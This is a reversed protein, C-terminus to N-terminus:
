EGCGPHKAEHKGFPLDLQSDPCYSCDVISAVPIPQFALQGTNKNM